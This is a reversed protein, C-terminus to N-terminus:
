ILISTHTTYTHARQDDTSLPNPTQTHHTSETCYRLVQFTERGTSLYLLIWQMVEMGREVNSDDPSKGAPAGFIRQQMCSRNFLFRSKVTANHIGTLSSEVVRADRLPHSPGDHSKDLDVNDL